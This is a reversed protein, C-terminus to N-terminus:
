AARREPNLDRYRPRPKGYVGPWLVDLPQGVITAIRKAIYVSRQRDHVVASVAAPSVGEERAVRTLTFGAKTLAAIIDAYHM